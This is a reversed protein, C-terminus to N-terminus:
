YYVHYFESLESQSFFFKYCAHVNCIRAELNVTSHSKFSVRTFTQIQCVYDTAVKCDSSHVEYFIKLYIIFFYDSSKEHLKTYILVVHVHLTKM